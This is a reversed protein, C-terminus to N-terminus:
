ASCNAAPIHIPLRDRDKLCTVDQGLARDRFAQFDQWAANSPDDPDILEGTSCDVLIWNNPVAIALLAAVPDGGGRVHVMISEIPDKKGTNFEFSFGDKAFLGWYPDSWDVGGPLSQSIAERVDASPGLPPFEFDESLETFDPPPEGEFNFIMVDWSM